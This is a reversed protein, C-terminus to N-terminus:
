EDGGRDKCLVGKGGLTRHRKQQGAHKRQAIGEVGINEVVLLLTKSLTLRGTVSTGLM